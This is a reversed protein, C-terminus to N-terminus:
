GLRAPDVIMARLLATAEGKPLRLVNKLYEGFMVCAAKERGPTHKTPDLVEIASGHIAYLAMAVKTNIEQLRAAPLLTFQRPRTELMREMLALERRGVDASVYPRLDGFPKGQTMALCMTPNTQALQDVMEVFLQYLELLHEDALFKMRPKSIREVFQERMLIMVQEQTAGSRFNTAMVEVIADFTAPEKEEVLRYIRGAEGANRLARQIFARDIKPRVIEQLLRVSAKKGRL